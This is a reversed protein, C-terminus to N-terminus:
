TDRERHLLYIRETVKETGAFTIKKLYERNELRFGLSDPLQVPRHHLLQIVAHVVIQLVQQLLATQLVAHDFDGLQQIFSCYGIGLLCPRHYQLM